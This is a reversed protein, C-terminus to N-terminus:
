KGSGSGQADKPTPRKIEMPEAATFMGSNIADAGAVPQCDRANASYVCEYVSGKDKGPVILLARPATSGQTNRRLVDSPIAESVRSRMHAYIETLQAAGGGDGEQRAGAIFVVPTKLEPSLAYRREKGALLMYVCAGACNGDLVMTLGLEEVNRAVMANTDVYGGGVEKLVFYKVGKAQADQLRRFDPNDPEGYLYAYEGEVEVRMAHAATGHALAWVLGAGCVLAKIIHKM